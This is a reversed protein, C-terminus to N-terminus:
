QLCLCWQVGESFFFVNIDSESSCNNFCSTKKRKRVRKKGHSACSTQDPPFFVECECRIDLSCSWSLTFLYCALKYYFNFLSCGTLYYSYCGAM